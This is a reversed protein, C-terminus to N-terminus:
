AKPRFPCHDWGHAAPFPLPSPRLSGTHLHLLLLVLVLHIVSAPPPRSSSAATSLPCSGSLSVTRTRTHATSAPPSLSVVRWPTTRRRFPRHPQTHSAHAHRFNCKQQHLASLPPPTGRKGVLASPLSLFLPSAPLSGSMQHPLTQAKGTGRGKENAELHRGDFAAGTKEV